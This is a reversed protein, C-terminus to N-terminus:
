EGDALQPRADGAVEAVRYEDLDAAADAGSEDRVPLQVAARAAAGAVDAVYADGVVGGHHAPAAVDATEFGDSTAGGEDALRGVERAVAAAGEEGVPEGRGARQLDAVDHLCQRVAVGVRDHHEVPGGVEDALDESAQHVEVVRRQDHDAAM